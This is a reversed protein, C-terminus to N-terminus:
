RCFKKMLIVMSLTHIASSENKALEIHKSQCNKQLADSPICHRRCRKKDEVYGAKYETRVCQYQDLEKQKAAQVTDGVSDAFCHKILM